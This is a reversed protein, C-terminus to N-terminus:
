FTIFVFRNETKGVVSTEDNLYDEIEQWDEIDYNQRIEEETMEQFECCFGIVDMNFTYDDQNLYDFIIELAESTFHEKHNYLEFENKFSQLDYTKVIPM